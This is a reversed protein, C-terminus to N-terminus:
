SKHDYIIYNNKVIKYRDDDGAHDDDVHMLQAGERVDQLFYELFHAPHLLSSQHSLHRRRFEHHYNLYTCNM